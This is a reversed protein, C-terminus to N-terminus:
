ATITSLQSVFFQNAIASAPRTVLDWENWSEGSTNQQSAPLPFNAKLRPTKLPLVNQTTEWLGQYDRKVAFSVGGGYLGHVGRPDLEIIKLTAQDSQLPTLFESTYSLQRWASLYLPDLAVARQFYHAAERRQGATSRWYGSLYAIKPDNPRAKELQMFVQRAIGNEQQGGFVGECGFCHSELRGFSQPMLEYARRFHQAAEQYRGLGVLQVALRSQVCYADDFFGLSHQYLAIARSTLGAIRLYDADEALRIAHVAGEVKQAQAVKGQGRLAAGLESYARLRDGRGEEGDSPDIAIAAQALQQAKAWNGARRALFARWILPREEFRDRAAQQQLFADAKSGELDCLLQYASDYGGEREILARLIQSAQAPRNTKALAWAALYGLRPLTKTEPDEPSVDWQSLGDYALLPTLEKEGWNPAHELLYVMDAPRNANKYIAMLGYLFARSILASRTGAPQNMQSKTEKQYASVLLSQAFVTQKQEAFHLALRTRRKATEEDYISSGSSSPILLVSAGKQAMQMWNANPVVRGLRLLSAVESELGSGANKSALNIQLARVLTDGGRTADNSDLYAASLADLLESQKGPAFKRSGSAGVLNQLLQLRRPTEGLRLSADRYTDWWQLQPRAKLTSEIWHYKQLQVQLAEKEDVTPPGISNSADDPDFTFDGNKYTKLWTAVLQTAQAQQGRTLVEGLAHGRVSAIQTFDSDSSALTPFKSVMALALKGDPTANGLSWQPKSQFQSDSLWMRSALERTKGANYWILHAPSLLIQRLLPKADAEGWQTVLDPVDLADFENGRPSTQLQWQIGIIQQQRSPSEMLLSAFTQFRVLAQLAKEREEYGEGLKPKLIPYKQLTAQFQPLLIRYLGRLAETQGADDNQLRSAVYLSTAHLQSPTKAYDARALKLIEPWNDPSPLAAVLRTLDPRSIYGEATRGPVAMREAALKLWDRANQSASNHPSNLRFAKADRQWPTLVADSASSNTSPLAEDQKAAPLALIERASKLATQASCPLCPLLALLLIPSRM